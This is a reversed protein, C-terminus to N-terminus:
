ERGSAKNQIPDSFIYNDKKIPFPFNKLCIKFNNKFDEDYNELAEELIEIYKQPIVVDKDDKKALKEENTTMFAYIEGDLKLNKIAKADIKICSYNKERQKLVEFEDEDIKIVVGYILSNKDEEINLFVAKEENTDFIVNEISNWVRKYGLLSVVVLDDQKLVRNKFSKQASKINILSGFGFLYM